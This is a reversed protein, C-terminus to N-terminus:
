SNETNISVWSSAAGTGSLILVDRARSMAVYLLSKQSRIAEKQKEENLLNFGRFKHPLEKASIGTLIVVRFEMGKVGHFSSVRIGTQSGKSTRLDYYPIGQKHLSSILKKLDQNRFACVCIDKPAIGRQYHHMVQQIVYNLEDNGRPFLEYTPPDGSFLSYYGKLKWEEEDFDEFSEGSLVNLALSRIEETTRYNIKLHQSRKGRVSIGAHSFKFRKSYIKQMPDGCLFLDNSGEETLARVLRLEAMGFDQVEDVLIHSFPKAGGENFHRALQNIVQSYHLLGRRRIEDKYAKIWGYVQKRQNANIGKGRGVRSVGMYAEESQIDHYLFVEEFEEEYFAVPFDSRGKALLEEWIETPKAQEDMEIISEGQSLIGLKYAMKSVWKHINILEVKSSDIGLIEFQKGLNEALNRNFTTFLIPRSDRRNEQLYKARHLAVVTKGTGAGGTLKVAGTFNGYAIIRQTHHLYVMWDQFDGRYFRELEDTRRFQTINRQNNPSSLIAEAEEQEADIKGQEVLSLVESISEGMMLFQIGEITVEPLIEKLENVEKLTKMSRVYPITAPLVGISRLEADSWKAINPDGSPEKKVRAAIVEEGDALLIDFTQTADNFDMKRNSAWHYADDHHDVYVAMWITQAEGKVKALIIRIDKSARISHFKGGHLSEFNLSPSKPNDMFDLIAKTAAGASQNDLKRIAKFYNKHHHLQINM